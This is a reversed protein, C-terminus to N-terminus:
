GGHHVKRYYLYESCSQYHVLYEPISGSIVKIADMPAIIEFSDPFRGFQNAILRVHAGNNVKIISGNAVLSYKANFLGQGAFRVEGKFFYGVVNELDM